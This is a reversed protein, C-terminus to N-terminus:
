AAKKRRAIGVLGLLGSGFLWAAPPIPVVEWNGPQQTNTALSVLEFGGFPPFTSERWEDSCVTPFCATIFGVRYNGFDGRSESISMGWTDINGSDDTGFVFSASSQGFELVNSIGDQSATRFSFEFDTVASTWDNVPLNPTLPLDLTFEGTVFIPESTPFIGIDDSQVVLPESTYSYVISASATQLLLFAVSAILAVIKHLM